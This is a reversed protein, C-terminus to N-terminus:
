PGQSPVAFTLLLPDKLVPIPNVLDLISEGFPDSDSILLSPSDTRVDSDPKDFDRFEDSDAFDRSGDNDNVPAVPAPDPNRDASPCDFLPVGPDLQIRVLGAAKLPIKNDIDWNLFGMPQYASAPNGSNFLGLCGVALTFFLLKAVWRM